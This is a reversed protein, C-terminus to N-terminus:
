RLAELGDTLDCSQASLLAKAALVRREYYTRDCDSNMWPPDTEGPEGVRYVTGLITRGCRVEWVAWGGPTWEGTARYRFKGM